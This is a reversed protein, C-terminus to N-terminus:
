DDDEDEFIRPEWSEGECPIYDESVHEDYISCLQADRNFYKCSGCLTEEKFKKMRQNFKTYQKYAPYAVLLWLAFIIVWVNVDYHLYDLILLIASIVIFSRLLVGWVISGFTVTPKSNHNDEDTGARFM